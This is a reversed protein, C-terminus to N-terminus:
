ELCSCISIEVNLEVLDDFLLLPQGSNTPHEICSSDAPYAICQQEGEQVLYDIKDSVGQLYHSFFAHTYNTATQQQLAHAEPGTLGGVTSPPDVDTNDICLGDTYGFHNAGTIALLHKKASNVENYIEAWYSTPFNTPCPKDATGYIILAPEILESKLGDTGYFDPAILAVAKVQVTDLKLVAFLCGATIFM